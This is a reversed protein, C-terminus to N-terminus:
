GLSSKQLPRSRDLRPWHYCTTFNIVWFSSHISDKGNAPILLRYQISKIRTRMPNCRPLLKQKLKMQQCATKHLLVKRATHGSFIALHRYFNSLFSKVLFIISKVGKCFKGQFTPSKHLNIEALPKSFKGLTWYGAWDPWVAEPGWSM